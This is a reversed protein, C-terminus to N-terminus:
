IMQENYWEDFDPRSIRGCIDSMYVTHLKGARFSKNMDEKTHKKTTAPEVEDFQVEYDKLDNITTMNINNIADEIAQKSEENPTEKGFVESWLKKGKDSWDNPEIVNYEKGKRVDMYNIDSKAGAEEARGKPKYDKAISKLEKISVAEGTLGDVLGKIEGLVNGCKCETCKCEKKPKPQNAVMLEQNAKAIQKIAEAFAAVAVDTPIKTEEVAEFESSMGYKVTVKDDKVSVKFKPEPFGETLSTTPKPLDKDLKEKKKKLRSEWHKKSKRKEKGYRLVIRVLRIFDNIGEKSCNTIKSDANCILLNLIEQRKM